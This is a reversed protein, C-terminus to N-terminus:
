SKSQRLQQYQVLLENASRYDKKDLAQQILEAAEADSKGAFPSKGPANPNPAYAAAVEKAREPSLGMQQWAAALRERAKALSLTRGSRDRLWHDAHLNPDAHGGRV